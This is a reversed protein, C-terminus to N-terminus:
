KRLNTYETVEQGNCDIIVDHFYFLTSFYVENPFKEFLSKPYPCVYSGSFPDQHWWNELDACHEFCGDKFLSLACDEVVRINKDKRVKELLCKKLKEFPNMNGGQISQRYLALNMMVLNGEAINKQCDKIELDSNGYCNEKVTDFTVYICLPGRALGDNLYTVIAKDLDAQEEYLLLIHRKNTSPHALINTYKHESKQINILTQVDRPLFSHNQNNNVDHNHSV